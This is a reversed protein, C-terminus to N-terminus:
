AEPSSTCKVWCLSLGSWDFWDQMMTNHSHSVCDTASRSDKIPIHGLGTCSLSRPTGSVVVSVSLRRVTACWVFVKTKPSHFHSPHTLRHPFQTFTVIGCDTHGFFLTLEAPKNPLCHMWNTCSACCTQWRDRLVFKVHIDQTPHSKDILGVSIIFRKLSWKWPQLKCIVWQTAPGNRLWLCMVNLRRRM